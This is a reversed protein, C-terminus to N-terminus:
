QNERSRSFLVLEAFGAQAATFECIRRVSSLDSVTATARYKCNRASVEIDRLVQDVWVRDTGTYTESFDAVAAELAVAAPRWCNLMDTGVCVHHDRLCVKVANGDIRDNPLIELASLCVRQAEINALM